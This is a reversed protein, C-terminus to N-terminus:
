LNMINKYTSLQEPTYSIYFYENAYGSAQTNTIAEKTYGTYHYKEKNKDLYNYLHDYEKKHARYEFGTLVHELM